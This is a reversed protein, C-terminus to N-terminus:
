KVLVMRHVSSNDGMILRCFYIGSSVISGNADEGDWIMSHVGAPLNKAFMTKVKQGSINFIDLIVIGETVLSFEITTQPNFPNPFNGRINIIVPMDRNNEVSVSREDFSSVGSIHLGFWKLNNNDVTVSNVYNEALGDETTYTTWKTGNFSSVGGSWTGFWKVNDADVAIANVYNSTLGDDTTYTAWVTGDFSSVGSDWTGFWKVNDADVVIKKVSNSALGDETTYTTWTTGDFSSVGIDWTNFWKVNDADVAILRVSNDVFGDGTTYTTWTTGDFTYTTWTTGDFSSVGGFETGFWKVNDTDVAIVLVENAALGDETTYTTWTGEASASSVLILVTSAVHCLTKMNKKM